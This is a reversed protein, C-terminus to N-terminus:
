QMLVLRRMGAAQGVQVYVTYIGQPIKPLGFTFQNVGSGAQFQRSLVPQGAPNFLQLQGQGAESVSFEIAVNGTAPNPFLRLGELAFYVEGAGSPGDPLMVTQVASCGGADHVTVTYNGAVLGGAVATNAGTSWRYVYPAIGGAPVARIQGDAAGKVGPTTTQAALTLQTLVDLALTDAAVCGAADTVSVSVPDDGPLVRQLTTYTAGTSWTYAYPAVGGSAAAIVQGAQADYCAVGGQLSVQLGTCCGGLSVTDADTFVGGTAVAEGNFALTYGGKAPDLGNGGADTITLRYCHDNYACVAIDYTIGSLLNDGSEVVANDTVDFLQWATEQGADDTRLVFRILADTEPPCPTQYHLCGGSGHAGCQAGATTYLSQARISLSLLTTLIILINKM